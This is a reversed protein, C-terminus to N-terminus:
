SPRRLQWCTIATCLGALVLLVLTTVLQLPWFRENFRQYEVYPTVHHADLCQKVSEVEQLMGNVLIYPGTLGMCNINEVFKGDPGVYKVATILDQRYDVTGSIITEGDITYSSSILHQKQLVRYYDLQGLPPLLHPYGSALGGQLFLLLLLSLAMAPLTRRLLAGIMVAFALCFLADAVFVSGRILFTDWPSEAISDQIFGWWTTVYALLGFSLLVLGGLILLKSWLWRVPSSSQTWAFLHTRQEYERPLLPAGFFVAPVLPLLPLLLGVLSRWQWTEGPVIMIGCPLADPSFCKTFHHQAWAANLANADLLFIYSLLILLLTGVGISPWYRKWTLWIM